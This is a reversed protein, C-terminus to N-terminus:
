SGYGSDPINNFGILVNSLKPAMSLKASGADYSKALDLERTYDRYVATTDFGKIEMFKLKTGLVMLRDGHVCKDTDVTFSSKDPVVGTQAAASLVWQDSLYEFGLYDNTSFTPWIQFLTGLQRFRVRPGSSIYGSKLWQWQQATEPGMMEWHRSKNWETNDIMGAFDSPMAYKTQSFTLTVTSGTAEAARTLVATSAGSDVSSLYTDQPIGTGTVMFYTPTTTLGTTSSLTDITTSANTTNATYQYYVTTFRYEKTMKQWQTENALEYGVANMLALLQMVETNTNAAVTSPVSLGLERTVQTILQLM